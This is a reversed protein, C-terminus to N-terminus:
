RGGNELFTGREKEFMMHHVNRTKTIVSDLVDEHCPVVNLM